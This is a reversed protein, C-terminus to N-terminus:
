NVLMFAFLIFFHIFNHYIQIISYYAAISFLSAEKNYEHSARLSMNYCLLNSLLMILMIENECNYTCTLTNHFSFKPLVHVLILTTNQLYHLFISVKQNKLYKTYKHIIYTVKVILKNM